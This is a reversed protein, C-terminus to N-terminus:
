CCMHYAEPSSCFGDRLGFPHCVISYGLADGGLLKSFHDARLASIFANNFIWIEQRPGPRRVFKSSRGVTEHCSAISLEQPQSRIGEAGSTCMDILTDVPGDPQKQLLLRTIRHFAAVNEAPYM